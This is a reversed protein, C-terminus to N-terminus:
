RSMWTLWMVFAFVVVSLLTAIFTTAKRADAEEELRRAENLRPSRTVSM